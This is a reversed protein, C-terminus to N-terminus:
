MIKNKCAGGITGAESLMQASGKFAGLLCLTFILYPPKEDAMKSKFKKHSPFFPGGCLSECNQLVQEWSL